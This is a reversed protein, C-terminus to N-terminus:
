QVQKSLNPTVQRLACMLVYPLLYEVPGTDHQLHLM